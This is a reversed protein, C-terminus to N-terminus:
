TLSCTAQSTIGQAFGPGYFVRQFCPSAALCSQRFMLFDALPGGTTEPKLCWGCAVNMWKEKGENGPMERSNAIM